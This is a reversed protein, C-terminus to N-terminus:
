LREREGASECECDNAHAQNGAREPLLVGFVLTNFKIILLLNFEKRHTYIHANGRRDCIIELQFINLCSGFCFHRVMPTHTTLHFLNCTTVSSRTKRGNEILSRQYDPLPLWPHINPSAVRHNGLPTILIITRGIPNEYRQRILTHVGLPYMFLAIFDSFHRMEGKTRNIKSPFRM